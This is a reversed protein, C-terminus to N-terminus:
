VLEELSREKPFGLGPIRVSVVVPDPVIPSPAGSSSRPQNSFYRNLEGSQMQQFVQEIVKFLFDPFHDSFMSPSAIIAQVDDPGEFVPVYVDEKSHFLSCCRRQREVVKRFHILRKCPYLKKTADTPSCSTLRLSSRFAIAESSITNGNATPSSPHFSRVLESTQFCKLFLLTKSHPSAAMVDFLDERFRDFTHMAFRPVLDQGAFCGLVFHDCYDVVAQSLLGGPPSYALCQMRERLQPHKSWLLMSLLISVGAGLSHGLVVLKSQAYRGSLLGDTIAYYELSREVYMASELIGGHVFYDEKAVGCATDTLEVATPVASIDTICDSLSQTGRIAVVITDESEDYAVYHVPKYIESNWQSILIHEEPIGTVMVVTSLDCYFKSGFHRGPHSRCCMCPDHSCVTCLGTCCHMYQQLMWGYTAMYFRSYHRFLNIARVEEDSLTPCVVAQVTLREAVGPAPPLYQVQHANERLCTTHYGNLLLVGAVIDSTVVDNARFSRALISAAAAYADETEKDACCGCCLCWLRKWWVQSYDDLAEYNRRGVPDYATALFLIFFMCFCFTLVLSLEIMVMERTCGHLQQLRGTFDIVLVCLVLNFVVSVTVGHLFLGVLRRKSREFIAGRISQSIALCLMVLSFINCFVMGLVTLQVGRTAKPCAPLFSTEGKANAKGSFNITCLLIVMSALALLADFGLPFFLEDSSM